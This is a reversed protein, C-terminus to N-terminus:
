MFFEKGNNFIFLCIWIFATIWLFKNLWSNRPEVDLLKALQIEADQARRLLIRNAEKQKEIEDQLESIKNNKEVHAEMSKNFKMEMLDFNRKM